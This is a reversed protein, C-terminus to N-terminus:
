AIGNPEQPRPFSIIVTTGKGSRSRITITGDHRDVISKCISLGLGTGDEKTTYFPDFIKERVTASIGCGTDSVYLRLSNKLLRTEIKLTGQSGMAQIANRSLNLILQKIEKEDLDLLPLKKDLTFEVIIGQQTAEAYLLPRLQEVIGNLPLSRKESTKNRALSLFDSIISDIRTLESLVLGINERFAEDAKKHMLQLFGMMTTMPNRIEHAVGAAMQSVLSLRDPRFLQEKAKEKEAYEQALKQKLSEVTDLVPQLEPLDAIHAPNYNGSHIDASFAALSSGIQSFAWAVALLIAAWILLAVFYRQLNLHLLEAEFDGVAYNAWAYGIITGYLSIPYNVSFLKERPRSVSSDLTRVVLESAHYRVLPQSTAMLGIYAPSYPSSAVINLEKLYIGTGYGPNESALKDVIPQLYRNIALLKEDASRIQSLEGLLFPRVPDIRQDLKTVINILKFKKENLLMERTRCADITCWILMSITIILSVIFYTKQSISVQRM